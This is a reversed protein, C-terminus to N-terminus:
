ELSAGLVRLCEAQKATLVHGKAPWSWVGPSTEAFGKVGLYSRAEEASPWPERAVPIRDDIKM